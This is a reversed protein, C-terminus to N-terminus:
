RKDFFKHQVLFSFFPWGKITYFSKDMWFFQNEVRSKLRNEVPKKIIGM